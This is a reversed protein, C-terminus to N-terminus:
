RAGCLNFKWMRPTDEYGEFLTCLIGCKDYVQYIFNCVLLSTCPARVFLFSEGIESIVGSEGTFTLYQNEAYKNSSTVAELFEQKEITTFLFGFEHIKRHLWNNPINSSSIKYFTYYSSLRKKGANNVVSITM